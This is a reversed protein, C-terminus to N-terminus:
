TNKVNIASRAKVWINCTSIFNWSRCISWRVQIDCTHSKGNNLSYRLQFEKIYKCNFKISLIVTAFKKSYHFLTVTFLKLADQSCIHIWQLKFNIKMAAIGPKIKFNIFSNFVWLYQVTTILWHQYICLSKIIKLIISRPIHYLLQLDSEAM